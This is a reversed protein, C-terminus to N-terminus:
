FEVGGGNLDNKPFNDQKTPELREMPEVSPPNVNGQAQAQRIMEDRILKKIYKTNNVPQADVFDYLDEEGYSFTTQLRAYYTTKKSM